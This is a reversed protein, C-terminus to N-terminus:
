LGYRAFKFAKKYLAKLEKETLGQLWQCAEKDGGYTEPYGGVFGCSTVSEIVSARSITIQEVEKGKEDAWCQLTDYGINLWTRNLVSIAREEMTMCTTM